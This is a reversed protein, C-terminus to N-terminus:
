LASGDCKGCLRHGCPRIFLTNPQDFCVGCTDESAVSWSSSGGSPVRWHQRQGQRAHKATAHQLPHSHAQTLPEPSSSSSGASSSSAEANGSSRANLLLQQHPCMVLLVQLPPRQLVLQQLRVLTEWQFPYLNDVLSLRQLLPCAGKELATALAAAGADCIINSGLDLQLLKSCSHLATAIATAGEDMICTGTLRLYQLATAAPLGDAVAM